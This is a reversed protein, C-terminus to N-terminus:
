KEIFKELHQNSEFKPIDFAVLVCDQSSKNEYAHVTDFDEVLSDGSKLRTVKGNRYEVIEGSIVYVMGAREKHNHEAIKAGSAVVIKRMRIDYYKAMPMQEALSFRQLQDITIPKISEEAFSFSSSLTAVVMILFVERM